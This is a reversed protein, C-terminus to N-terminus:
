NRLRKEGLVRPTKRNESTAKKETANSARPRTQLNRSEPRHNRNRAGKARERKRQEKQYTKDSGFDRKEEQREEQCGRTL